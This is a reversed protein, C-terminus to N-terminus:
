LYRCTALFVDESFISDKLRLTILIGNKSQDSIDAITELVHYAMRGKKNYDHLLVKAQTSGHELAHLFCMCVCAVRYRGDVFYVDFPLLESLLPAIQYNLVAKSVREIPQGWAKTVGIDAFYFRFRNNNVENRTKEIYSPDSDVGSYRPVNVAAAIRSSEGIGFEFVSNADAYTKLILDRDSDTM